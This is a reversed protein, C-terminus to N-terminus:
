RRPLFIQPNRKQPLESYNIQGFVMTGELLGGRNRYYKNVREIIWPFTLAPNNVIVAAFRHSSFVQEIEAELERKIANDDARMIDWLVAIHTYTRKGALAPLFGHDPTYVEGEISALVQMFRDGAARDSAGPLYRAPHYIIWGFQFLALAYILYAFPAVKCDTTDSVSTRSGAYARSLLGHLATGWLLSIAAYAPLLVNSAGGFHLRSTWSAALMASLFLTYYVLKIKENADARKWDLWSLGLYLALCLCAVPLPRLLDRTWFLRLMVAFFGHQSPLDFIYYSYWGDSLYHFLATMGFFPLTFGLVFFLFGRGGNAYLCAASIIATVLLAPQKTFAALAFLAGAACCGRTSPYFRLVHAASLLLFVFLSDVRAIDIWAGGQEFLAAYFGASLLGYLARGTERQAFRFIVALSGVSAAFSVLRLSFFSVGCIQCVLASLYYYFPPYILPTFEFSPEGYLNNGSLLRRVHDVIAGEEWELEYPYSLRFGALVLYELLYALAACALAVAILNLTRKQSKIM